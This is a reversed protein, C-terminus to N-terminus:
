GGSGQRLVRVEGGPVELRTGYRTGTLLDVGTFPLEATRDQHNIVTVFTHDEGRRLVVEVDGGPSVALGADACAATLVRSLLDEAPRTSIYWAQGSGFSHRTVAPAGAAPGDAYSLITKAGALHVQEGARLPLFEEVTVGLLGGLPGPYSGPHVTDSAGVIGSFYSVVLTGGGAVYESLNAAARPTTLYLSPVLM